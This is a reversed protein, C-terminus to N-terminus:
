LDNSHSILIAHSSKITNHQLRSAICAISRIVLAIDLERISTRIFGICRWRLFGGFFSYVSFALCVYLDLQGDLNRFAFKQSEVNGIMWARGDM